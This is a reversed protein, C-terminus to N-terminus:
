SFVRLSTGTLETNLKQLNRLAPGKLVEGSVSFESGHNPCHFRFNSLQFQITTGQHTCKKAVAVYTSLGTCAIIVSDKVVSGGVNKLAAYPSQTIDITFDASIPKIEDACGVLSCACIALTGTGLTKVFESRKM